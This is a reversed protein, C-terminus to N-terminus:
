LGMILATYEASNNSCPELLSSHPIYVRKPSCLIIGVGSVGEKFENTRTAGDFCMIWHLGIDVTQKMVKEAFFVPENPLDGKFESDESLPHEALFDAFAQGIIVKAPTYRIDHCFLLISWKALRDNLFSAKTMLVKLPNIRSMLYVINSPFYRRLKQIAFMVAFCEKEVPRYKHEAGFLMRSLYCFAAEKGKDSNQALLAGLSHDLARTYLIITQKANPYSACASQNLVEQYRQICRQM